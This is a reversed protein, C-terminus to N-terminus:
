PNGVSLFPLAIVGSTIANNAPIPKKAVMFPTKKPPM